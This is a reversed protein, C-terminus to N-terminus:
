VSHVLYILCKLLDVKLDYSKINVILYDVVLSLSWQFNIYTNLRQPQLDRIFANNLLM